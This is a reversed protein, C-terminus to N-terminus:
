ALRAAKFGEPLGACLMYWQGDRRYVPWRAAIRVMNQNRLVAGGKRAKSGVGASPTDIRPDIRPTTIMQKMPAQLKMPQPISIAERGRVMSPTDPNIFKMM